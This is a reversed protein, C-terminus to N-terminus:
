LTAAVDLPNGKADKSNMAIVDGAPDVFITLAYIGYTKVYNNMADAIQNADTTDYWNYKEGTIRNSAFAQVDGYREFLSRDIKDSIGRAVSSLRNGANQEMEDSASSAMFGIAMMPLIGFIAFMTVLKAAIGWSMFTQIYQKMPGESRSRGQRELHQNISHKTKQEVAKWVAPAQKAGSVVSDKVTSMTKVIPDKVAPSSAWTVIKGLGSTISSVVNRRKEAATPGGGRKPGTKYLLSKLQDQGRGQPKRKM